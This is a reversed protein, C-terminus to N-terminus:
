AATVLAVFVDELTPAIPAIAVVQVGASALAQELAPVAQRAESVRAHIATGYLAAETVLPSARVVDLARMWERCVVELLDGGRYHRKIERPAG